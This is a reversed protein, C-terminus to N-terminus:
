VALELGHEAKLHELITNMISDVETSELTRERNQFSVRLTLRRVDENDKRFDDVVLVEVLDPQKLEEIARVVRVAVSRLDLKITIDRRIMPLDIPLSFEGQSSLRALLAMDLEAFLVDERVDLHELLNPHVFGFSGCVFRGAKLQAQMGPHLFSHKAESSSPEQGLVRVLDELVGKFLMLAQERSESKRWEGESWRGAAGLTLLEREHNYGDEAGHQQSFVRGVEFVRVGQLGRRLNSGIVQTLHIVNTTKLHSYGRELSNKIPIHKEAVGRELQGLCDVEAQSYFARTMVEYFGRGTLIPEVRAVCEELPTPDPTDASLPPLEQKVRSFSHSRAFDEILDESNRVDWLRWSPVIVRIVGPTGSAEIVYGLNKLRSSIELEALRPLNLQARVEALTVEVKRREVPAGEVYSCGIVHASDQEKVAGASGGALYVLRRLAPVITDIDCGREFAYSADTSVGMARATKRVSVPDFAASEILVRTTEATVMSNACGIVGAVAVTKKKDRILVAGAPVTYTKGDLAEVEEVQTSLEILIEGDIKDRDFAHMPQGLELQVFNLLDVIAPKTSPGDPSMVALVDPRAQMGRPLTLELLAYRMCKDTNKRVIISSKRDAFAAAIPPNSISALYRAALERAVGVAYLHDGRNALTEINFVTRSGEGVQDKVELGLDDLVQRLENADATPLEILKELMSLHLKM